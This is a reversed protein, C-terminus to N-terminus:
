LVMISLICFVLPRFWLKEKVRKIAVVINEDNILSQALISCIKLFYENTKIIKM